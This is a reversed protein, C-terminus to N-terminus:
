KPSADLMSEAWEKMAESTYEKPGAADDKVPMAFIVREFVALEV